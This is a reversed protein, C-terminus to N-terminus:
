TVVASYLHINNNNNNNNEVNFSHAFKKRGVRCMVPCKPSSVKWIIVQMLVLQFLSLASFWVLLALVRLWCYHRIYRRCRHWKVASNRSLEAISCDSVAVDLHLRTDHGITVTICGAVADSPLPLSNVLEVCGSRSLTQLLLRHARVSTEIEVDSVQIYVAFACICRPGYFRPVKRKDIDKGIISWNEFKKWQCV